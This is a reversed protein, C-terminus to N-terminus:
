RMVRPRLLVLVRKVQTQEHPRLGLPFAIQVQSQVDYPRRAGLEAVTVETPIGMALFIRHVSTAVNLGQGRSGIVTPGDVALKGDCSKYFSPEVPTIVQLPNAVVKAGPKSGSVSACGVGLLLSSCVFLSAVIKTIRGVIGGRNLQLIWEGGM